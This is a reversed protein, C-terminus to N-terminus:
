RKSLILIFTFLMYRAVALWSYFVRSHGSQRQQMSVPVEITKLGNMRLCILIGIDQYDFLSTDRNILASIAKQNYARFGSTLDQYEIGTLYRFLKWILKRANSGRETCAGITVDAEKSIIPEILNSIATIPHQGDADMTIAIDYGEQQAYYLGTRIAGWAGLRFAHQFVIAGANKAVQYTNDQSADDVVIVTAHLHHHISQVIAGITASENMAPIIVLIETSNM